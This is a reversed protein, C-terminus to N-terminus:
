VLWPICTEDLRGHDILWRPSEPFLLILAAFFVAPVMQIGLCIRWQRSDDDAFNIFTGWSIWAAVLSGVGLMLQLLSTIRGRTDPHALEAQYLPIVTVLFRQRYPYISGYGSYIPAGRPTRVLSITEALM